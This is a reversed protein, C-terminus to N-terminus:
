KKNEPPSVNNDKAETYRLQTFLAILKESKGKREWNTLQIQSVQDTFVSPSTQTFSFPISILSLRRAMNIKISHAKLIFFFEFTSWVFVFVCM